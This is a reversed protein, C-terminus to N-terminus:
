VAEIHPGLESRTASALSGRHVKTDIVEAAVAPAYDFGPSVAIFLQTTLAESQFRHLDPAFESQRGRGDM